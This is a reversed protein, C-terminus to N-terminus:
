TSSEKGAQLRLAQCGVWSRTRLEHLTGKANSPTQFHVRAKVDLLLMRLVAEPSSRSSDSYCIGRHQALNLCSNRKQTVSTPFRFDASGATSLHRRFCTPFVEQPFWHGSKTLLNLWKGSSALFWEPRCQYTSFLVALTRATPERM